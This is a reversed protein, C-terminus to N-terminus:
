KRKMRELTASVVAENSLYRRELDRVDETAWGLIDAVEERSLPPTGTRARTVFGGRADHLHLNNGSERAYRNVMAGLAGPTYPTGRYTRFLFGGDKSREAIMDAIEPLIPIVAVRAKEGATHSRRKSKLPSFVFAREPRVMDAQLNAIDERRMGSHLALLLADRAIQLAHRSPGQMPGQPVSETKKAILSLFAEIHETKWIMESRDSKHLEGIGRLPNARLTGDQISWNFARRLVQVRMDAARTGRQAAVAKRWKGMVRPASRAELMSVTMKGVKEERLQHAIRAWEKRTSDSLGTFDTSSMFASLIGAVTNRDDIGSRTEIYARALATHGVKEAAEAEAKSAGKYSGIVPAGGGRWATWRIYYAGSKERTTRHAGALRMVNGNRSIPKAM